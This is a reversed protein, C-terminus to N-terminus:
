VTANNRLFEPAVIGDNIQSCLMERVDKTKIKKNQELLPMLTEAGELMERYRESLLSTSNSALILKLEEESLRKKISSDSKSVIDLYFEIRRVYKAAIPKLIEDEFVPILEILEKCNNARRRNEEFLKAQVDDAISEINAEIRTVTNTLYRVVDSDTAESLQKKQVEWAKLENTYTEIPDLLIEQCRDSSDATAKLERVWPSIDKTCVVKDTDRDKYDVKVRKEANRRDSEFRRKEKQLFRSSFTEEGNIIIKNIDGYKLDLKADVVIGIKKVLSLDEKHKKAKKLARNNAM